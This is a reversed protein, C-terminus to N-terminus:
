GVLRARELQRQAMRGKENLGSRGPRLLRVRRSAFDVSVRDFIQLAHSRLPSAFSLVALLMAGVTAQLM